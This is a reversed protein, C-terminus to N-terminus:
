DKTADGLATTLIQACQQDLRRLDEQHTRVIPRAIAEARPKCGGRAAQVLVFEGDRQGVLKGSNGPTNQAVLFCEIGMELRCRDLGGTWVLERKLRQM